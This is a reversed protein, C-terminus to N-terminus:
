KKSYTGYHQILAEAKDPQKRLLEQYMRLGKAQEGQKFYLVGLTYLIQSDDPKLSLIIEYEKIELEVMKLAQYVLALQEHVWPDQPAFEDLIKFEALAKEYAHQAKKARLVEHLTTSALYHNALMMYANATAAHAELSTPEYRILQLHKEISAFLFLEQIREIDNRHAKKSWKEVLSSLFQLNKPVNYFTEEKGSLKEALKCASNALALEAESASIGQPLYQRCTSIFEDRLAVLEQPKQEQYYLRLIFYLLLTFFLLAIAIGLFFSDILPTLFCLILIAECAVLAFFGLHFLFHKKAIKQFCDITPNILEIVKSHFPAYNVSTM